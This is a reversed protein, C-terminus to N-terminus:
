FGYEGIHFVKITPDIWTDYGADRAVNSFWADEGMVLAGESDRGFSFWATRKGDESVGFKPDKFISLKILTLGLGNHKAKYLETASEETLPKSVKTLPFERKNYEAGIIEKDHALLKPIVDYPFMMDCDVFLLHTAGAKLAQNVLWTRNSVIDCSRRLVMDIVLGEAGIIAGCLAQATLARMAEADSCPVGIIIKNKTKDAM